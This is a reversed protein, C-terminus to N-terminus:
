YKHGHLKLISKDELNLIVIRNIKDQSGEFVIQKLIQKETKNLPKFTITWASLSGTVVTQFNDRLISYNGSLMGRFAYVYLYAEPYDKLSIQQTFGEYDTVQMNDGRIELKEEYPRSITKSLYDPKQYGLVGQLSIPKKHTILTKEETFQVTSSSIKAFGALIEELSTDTAGTLPSFFLLMLLCLLSRNKGSTM